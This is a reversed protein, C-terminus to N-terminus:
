HKKVIMTHYHVNGGSVNNIKLIHMWIFELTLSEDMIRTMTRRHRTSKITHMCTHQENALFIFHWDLAQCKSQQLGYVIHPEAVNNMVTM